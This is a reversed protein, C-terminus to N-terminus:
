SEGANSAKQSCTARRRAWWRIRCFKPYDSLEWTQFFPSWDIHRAIAALDYDRFAKGRFKPVPPTYASWDIVANARAQAHPPLPARTEEVPAPHPDQRLRHAGFAHVERGDSLPSSCVSM